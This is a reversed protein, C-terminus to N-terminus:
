RTRTGRSNTACPTRRTRRSGRTRQCTRLGLNTENRSHIDDVNSGSALRGEGLPQGLQRSCQWAAALDRAERELRMGQTEEARPAARAEPATPPPNPEEAEPIIWASTKLVSLGFNKGKARVPVRQLGSDTHLDIWSGKSGSKVDAGSKTLKGM